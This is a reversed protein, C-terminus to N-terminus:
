LDFPDKSEPDGGDPDTPPAAARPSILGLQLAYDHADRDAQRELAIGPHAVTQGMSGTVWPEKRAAERGLRARAIARVYRELLQLDIDEGQEQLRSKCADWLEREQDDFDAPPV